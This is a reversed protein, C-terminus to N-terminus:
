CVLISMSHISIQGLDIKQQKFLKLLNIEHVQKLYINRRHCGLLGAEHNLSDSISYVKAQKSPYSKEFFIFGSKLFSKVHLGNEKKDWM